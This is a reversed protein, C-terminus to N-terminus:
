KWFQWWKKSESHFAVDVFEKTSMGNSLTPVRNDEIRWIEEGGVEVILSSGCWGYIELQGEREELEFSGETDSDAKFVGVSGAPIEIDLAWPEVWVSLPSDSENPVIREDSYM